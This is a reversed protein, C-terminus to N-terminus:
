GQFGHRAGILLALDVDSSRLGAASLVHDVKAMAEAVDPNILEEFVM